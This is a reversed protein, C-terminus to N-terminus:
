HRAAAASLRRDFSSFRVPEDGATATVSHFSALHLGDLVRLGHDAALDAAHAAISQTVELAVFTAWESEFAARVLEYQPQSLSRERARRTFAGRAEAYTIVSTTVVSAAGFLSRAEDSGQEEIFLKVLSSTDFYVIL